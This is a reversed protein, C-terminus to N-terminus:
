LATTVRHGLLRPPAATERANSQETLLGVLGHVSVSLSLSCLFAAVPWGGGVISVWYLSMLLKELSAGPQRLEGKEWCEKVTKTLSSKGHIGTHYLSHGVDELWTM